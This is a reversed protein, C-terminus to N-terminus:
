ASLSQGITVMGGSARDNGREAHSHRVPREADARTVRLTVPQMGVRLTPVITRDKALRDRVARCQSAKNNKHFFFRHRGLSGGDHDLTETFGM